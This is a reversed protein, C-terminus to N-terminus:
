ALSSRSFRPLLLDFDAWCEFRRSFFIRVKDLKAFHGGPSQDFMELWEAVFANHEPRHTYHEQAVIWDTIEERYEVDHERTGGGREGPWASCERDDLFQQQAVTLGSEPDYETSATSSASARSKRSSDSTRRRKGNHGWESDEEWPFPDGYDFNDMGFEKDYDSAHQEIVDDTVHQCMQCSGQSCLYGQLWKDGGGDVHQSYDAEQHLVLDVVMKMIEEPLRACHNAPNEACKRFISLPSYTEKMKAAFVSLAYGLRDPRVPLAWVVGM